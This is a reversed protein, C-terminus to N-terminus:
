RAWLDIVQTGCNDSTSVNNSPEQWTAALKDGLQVTFNTTCLIDAAASAPKACQGPLVLWNDQKLIYGGNNMLEFSYVDGHSPNCAQWPANANASSCSCAVFGSKHVARVQKFAGSAIAAITEVITGHRKANKALLTWGGGQAKMECTALYAGKKLPDIWYDGSPLNADGALLAACSEGASGASSGPKQQSVPKFAQGDCIMLV